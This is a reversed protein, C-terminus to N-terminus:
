FIVVKLPIVERTGSLSIIYIGSPYSSIDFEVPYERMTDSFILEGRISFLSLHDFFTTTDMLNIILKGSLQFVSLKNEKDHIANFQNSVDVECAGIVDSGDKAKANVTISGDSVATLIGNDDIAAVEIPGELYWEVMCNTADIPLIKTVMQLKGNKVNIVPDVNGEPFVEISEVLIVTDSITLVFEGMVGSGDKATAIVRVTGDSLATLLGSDNITAQGTGNIVTWIVTKNTANAPMVVASLQLTGNTPMITTGGASVITIATVPIFIEGNWGALRAWLWWAAIGKQQCNLAQSHACEGTYYCSDPNANCWQIAWNADHSGNNDSDYYCDDKALLEMYNVQGDPDYSEIDAFDYLIKNQNRCFTRIQENRINLNEFPGTGNLPGTMYVFRVKPYETELQSMLNLYFEIDAQTSNKVQNCWSWIVVNINENSSDNLYDRTRNAWTVSDPDGLDGLVFKDRLDLAGETGGENFAYATGYKSLIGTMGSVLQDGHSTHGYAIHLTDRASNIFTLPINHLKTCTHDIIIPAQSHLLPAIQIALFCICFRKM